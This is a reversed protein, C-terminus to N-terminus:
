YQFYPVRMTWTKDLKEYLVKNDTDTGLRPLYTPPKCTRWIDLLDLDGPGCLAHLEELIGNVSRIGLQQPLESSENKQNDTWVITDGKKELEKILKHFDVPGIGTILKVTTALRAEQYTWMRTRWRGWLLCMAIDVPDISKLKLM